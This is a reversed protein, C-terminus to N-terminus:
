GDRGFPFSRCHFHLIKKSTIISFSQAHHHEWAQQSFQIISEIESVTPLPKMCLDSLQSPKLLEVPVAPSFFNVPMWPGGNSQSMSPTPFNVVETFPLNPSPLLAEAASTPVIFCSSPAAAHFTM